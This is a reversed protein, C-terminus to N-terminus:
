WIIYYVFQLSKVYIYTFYNSYSILLRSRLYRERLLAVKAAVVYRRVDDERQLIMGVGSEAAVTLVVQEVRM